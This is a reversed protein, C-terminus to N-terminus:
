PSPGASRRTSPLSDLNLEFNMWKSRSADRLGRLHVCNEKSKRMWERCLTSM